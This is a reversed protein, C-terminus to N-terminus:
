LNCTLSYFHGFSYGASLILLCYYGEERYWTNNWNQPKNVSFRNDLMQSGVFDWVQSIQHEEDLRLKRLLAYAKMDYAANLPNLPENPVPLPQANGEAGEAGEGGEGEATGEGEAGEPREGEVGELAASSAAGAAGQAEKTKAKKGKKAEKKLRSVSFIVM